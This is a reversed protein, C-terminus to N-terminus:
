ELYFSLQRDLNDVPGAYSPGNQVPIITYYSANENNINTSKKMQYIPNITYTTHVLSGNTSSTVSQYFIPTDNQLANEVERGTIPLYRYGNETTIDEQKILIFASNNFIGEEINNLKDATIVDGNAWTIKNYAM